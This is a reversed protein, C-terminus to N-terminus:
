ENAMNRSCNAAIIMKDVQSLLSLALQLIRVQLLTTESQVRLWFLRPYVNFVDGSQQADSPIVSQM